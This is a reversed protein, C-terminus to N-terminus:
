SEQKILNRISSGRVPQVHIILTNFDHDVTQKGQYISPLRM